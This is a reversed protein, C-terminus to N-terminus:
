IMRLLLDNINEGRYGMAGGQTYFRKIGEHGKKPPTLRFPVKLTKIDRLEAKYSFFAKLYDDLNKFVSYKGINDDSIKNNGKVNGRKVLLRKMTNEDIEGWTLHTSAKRLMGLIEPSKKTVIAQNIRELKLLELTRKVNYPVGVQGKLRIVAIRDL